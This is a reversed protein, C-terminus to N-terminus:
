APQKLRDFYLKRVKAVKPAIVARCYGQNPNRRFYDRHYEEAPYFATLPKLETVVPEDWLKQAQLDAIVREATAKQEPSHFFIASRYQTGVDGGQRNLTTPDHITFFVHLLDEFSVVQPDFTIQVVEAHGTTGTCVDEYSPNAVRGGAYGSQVNEVGKLDQF